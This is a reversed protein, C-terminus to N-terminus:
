YRVGRGTGALDVVGNTREKAWMGNAAGSRYTRLSHLSWDKEHWKGKRKNRTYQHVVRVYIVSSGAEISRSVSPLASGPASTAPEVPTIPESPERGVM